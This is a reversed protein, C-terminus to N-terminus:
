AAPPIKDPTKTRYFIVWYVPVIVLTLISGFTLGGMITVAMAKWFIDPIIPVVGLATTMAALLVPRIRTVTAETIGALSLAGLIGLFGFPTDFIFLGGVIGIFAMPITLLIIFLPRFGNFVTVVLFVLLVAAVVAGPVLSTTGIRESDFEGDWFLHYGSPLEMANIEDIVDDRLTPFTATDIPSAQVTVARRRNWRVINSEEWEGRIDTTIASLPITTNSNAPQVQLGDIDRALNRREKDVYRLYIPMLDDGQRYLGVPRGDFAMKTTNAVDERNVDIWRGRQQDYVPVIKKVPQRMDHRVERGYPSAKVIEMTKEAVARIEDLDAEAPGSFRAEFKWTDSPGVSYRRLRTLAETVNAKLWPETDVVFTDIDDLNDFNLVFEAYSPYSLEPDVPLYFRPPGSGIFLSVNKVREDQLLKEEIKKLNESVDQIRTGEPAWYDVMLQTRTANPLFMQPIKGWNAMSIALLAMMAAITFFRFRTAKHLVWRFGNFFANDYESKPAEGGDKGTDDIKPEPLMKM